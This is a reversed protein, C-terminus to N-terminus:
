ANQTGMIKNNFDDFIPVPDILEHPTRQDFINKKSLDSIEVVFPVTMPYHITEGAGTIRVIEMATKLCGNDDLYDEINLSISEDLKHTTSKM